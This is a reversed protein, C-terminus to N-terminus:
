WANQRSSRHRSPFGEFRRSGRGGSPSGRHSNRKAAAPPSSSTSAARPACTRATSMVTWMSCSVTASTSRRAPRPGCVAAPASVATERIPPGTEAVLAAATGLSTEMTQWGGLDAARPSSWGPIALRLDIREGDYLDSALIESERWEWGEDTVVRTLTGDETEIDLALLLEPTRPTLRSDRDAGIRGAYWGPAVVAGIVNDGADLASTVDYEQYRVRRSFDTWGPRLLADGVRVGNIHLEYAGLATARVVARRPRAGVTFHRRTLYAARDGLQVLQEGPRAWRAARLGELRPPFSTEQQPQGQEAIV